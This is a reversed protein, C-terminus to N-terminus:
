SKKQPFIRHCVECSEELILQHQQHPFPVNGTNGGELIMNASGKNQGSVSLATYLFLAIVLIFYLAIKQM